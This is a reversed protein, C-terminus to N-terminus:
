CGDQGDKDEPEVPEVPEVPEDVKVAPRAGMSDYWRFYDGIQGGLYDAYRNKGFPRSRWTVLPNIPGYPYGEDDREVVTTVSRDTERWDGSSDKESHVVTTTTTKNAV